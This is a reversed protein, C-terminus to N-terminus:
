LDVVFDAADEQLLSLVIAEPPTSRNEPLETPPPSMAEILAAIM